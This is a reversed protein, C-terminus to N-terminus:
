KIRIKESEELTLLHAPYTKMGALLARYLRHNGDIVVKFVAGSEMEHQAVLAPKSKKICIERAYATDLNEAAPTTEWSALDIMYNIDDLVCSQPGYPAYDSVHYKLVYPQGNRILVGGQYIQAYRPDRKVIGQEFLKNQLHMIHDPTNEM